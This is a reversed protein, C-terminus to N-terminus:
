LMRLTSRVQPMLVLSLTPYTAHTLTYSQIQTLSHVYKQTHARVHTHPTRTHVHTHTRTYVGEPFVHVWAGLDLKSLIFDIGRQYVGDGRVVPVIQLCWLLVVQRSIVGAICKSVRGVVLVCVMQVHPICQTTRHVCTGVKGRSFYWNYLTNTFM